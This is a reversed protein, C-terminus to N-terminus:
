AEAATHLQEDRGDRRARARALLERLEPTGETLTGEDIAAAVSRCLSADSMARLDRTRATTM